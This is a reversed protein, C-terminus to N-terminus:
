AVLFEQEETLPEEALDLDSQLRSPHEREVRALATRAAWAASLGSVGALVLAVRPDFAESLWGAIPGGIPTSGLFVISYLAMVRGRMDPRVELQLYSNVSAAFTVTAAGLLALVPLELALTPAGAALLSLVGFALAAGAIVSASTRGRAGTVLAGAVSGVAMASVLAAYVTAGGGFSFRALLPLITQFNYGLAGVIAMLALPVALRPTAAVHRLASRVAGRERPVQPAPRLSGPEMRWLAFIMAGFTAANIAFCPEVGVTAILVGALAPGIIRASHVLVSNLSVANVVRGTGVIEIVFSQRTPNDVANVSGRAFVLAYVMAVTVVGASSLAFLALAPLVMLAQTVILLRRKAFRDALLGGWAGFLLIPLFQLATTLGVAVGSNTLSLVLWIEAVTQMWNGSLSVIQGVFYRRYNPVQLSDFSRRLAATM